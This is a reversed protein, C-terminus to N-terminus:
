KEYSFLKADSHEYIVLENPWSSNKEDEYDDSRSNLEIMGFTVSKM